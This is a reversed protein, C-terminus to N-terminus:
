EIECNVGFVENCYAGYSEPPLLDRLHDPDEVRIKMLWGNEYPSKYLRDLDWELEKNVALIEADAPPLIEHLSSLSEAVAIPFGRLMVDEAEPLELAILTDMEQLIPETLGMVVVESDIKVWEHNRTYARDKPIKLAKGMTIAPIRVTKAVRMCGTLITLNGFWMFVLFILM